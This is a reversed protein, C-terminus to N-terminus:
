LGVSSYVEKLVEESDGLYHWPAPTHVRDLARLEIALRQRDEALHFWCAFQARALIAAGGSRPAGNLWRDHARAVDAKVEDNNLYLVAIRQDSDFYKAYVWRELHAMAILAHLPHGAPMAAGAQRAHHFMDAHSGGWKETLAMMLAAHAAYSHSDARQVQTFARRAGDVDNRYRYHRINQWAFLPDGPVLRMGQSTDQESGQLLALGEDEDENRLSYGRGFRIASRLAFAEACPQTRCIADLRQEVEGAEDWDAAQEIAAESLAEVAVAREDLALEAALLQRLPRVDGVSLSAWTNAYQPNSQTLHKLPAGGPLFSKLNSWLSM